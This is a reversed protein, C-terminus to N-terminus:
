FDLEQMRGANESVFEYDKKGKKKVLIGKKICYPLLIQEAFLYRDEDDDWKLYKFRDTYSTAIWEAPMKDLVFNLEVEDAGTTRWQDFVRLFWNRLSEQTDEDELLEDETFREPALPLHLYRMDDIEKQTLPTYDDYIEETDKEQM